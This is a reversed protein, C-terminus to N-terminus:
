IMLLIIILTMMVGHSVQIFIVLYHHNMKTVIIYSIETYMLVLIM